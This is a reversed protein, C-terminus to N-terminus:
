RPGQARKVMMETLRKLEGQRQGIEEVAQLTDESPNQAESMLDSLAGTEDLLDSQMTRIMLLEAATPVAPGSKSSPGGSGGGGQSGAFEDGPPLSQAQRLAEILQSLQRLIRQQLGALRDNLQRDALMATAQQMNRVVESIVYKYIVTEELQQQIEATSEQVDAQMRTLEAAKRAASRGLREGTLSDILATVETKVADQRNRIEELTTRITSMFRQSAAHAASQARADLNEGARRLLLIASAQPEIAATGDRETLARQAHEMFDAAQRVLHGEEISESSDILLEGLSRANGALRGQDTAQGSFVSPHSALLVAEQTAAHLAEQDALLAAVARAAQEARKALISLRRTEREELAVVMRALSQRAMRQRLAAGALRNAQIDDLADKMLQIINAHDAIRLAADAVSADASNETSDGLSQQRLRDLLNQLEEALQKQLLKTRALESQEQENLEDPRKGLTQGGLAATQDRLSEQRDGLDRTKSVLAQFTSWEDLLRLVDGLDRIVIEQPVTADHQDQERQPYPAQSTRELFQLAQNAPGVAIHNLTDSVQDLRQVSQGNQLRNMEAQRALRQFDTAIELIDRAIRDQRAAQERSSQAISPVQRAPPAPDVSAMMERRLVITKERLTEQNSRVDRLRNQLRAVTDRVKSEFEAERIVKIFVDPSKGVQGASQDTPCNDMAEIWCRVRSAPKLKLDSMNLVHRIDIEHGSASRRKVSGRGDPLPGGDFLDISDAEPPLDGEGRWRLSSIEFDDEAHIAFVLLGNPTIEVASRPEVLSVVPARDPAANIVYTHQGRNSLGDRDLVHLRLSFSREVALSLHLIRPSENLLQLPHIQSNESELWADPLGARSERIPKSMEFTLEVHGGLVANVSNQTLDIQPPVQERVYAPPQVSATARVVEPQKVVLVRGPRRRTNADGAEFWYTLDGTVVDIDCRFENEDDRHMTMETRNGNDDVMHVGARVNPTWGRVIRMRVTTSDGAAVKLVDTIPEIGVRRPWDVPEFPRTYRYVGTSIFEPWAAALVSLTAAGLIFLAVRILLPRLVLANRLQLRAVVRATNAVVEDMLQPSGAPHGAVKPPPPASSRRRVEDRRSRDGGAIAPHDHQMARESLFSVTSSLRDNLGPYQRELRNAIQSLTIRSQLPQVVWRLTAFGCGVVFLVAGWIRLQPPLDLLWDLCVVTLFSLCGGALVSFVGFAAVRRRVSTRITSLEMLVPDPTRNM